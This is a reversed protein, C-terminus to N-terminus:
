FAVGWGGFVQESLAPFLVTHAAPFFNGFSPFSCPTLSLPWPWPNQPIASTSPGSLLPQLLHRSRLAYPVCLECAVSLKSLLPQPHPSPSNSCSRRPGGTAGGRLLGLPTAGPQFGRACHAPHWAGALEPVPVSPAKHQGVWGGAGLGTGGAPEPCAIWAIFACYIVRGQGQPRLLAENQAM